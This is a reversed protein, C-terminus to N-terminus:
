FTRMIVHGVNETENDGVLSSSKLQEGWCWFWWSWQLKPFVFQANQETSFAASRNQHKWIFITLEFHDLTFSLHSSTEQAISAWNQIFVQFTQLCEAQTLFCMGLDASMRWHRFIDQTKRLTWIFTACWICIATHQIWICSFQSFSEFVFKTTVDLVPVPMKIDTQALFHRWMAEFTQMLRSVDTNTCRHKDSCKESHQNFDWIDFVSTAATMWNVFDSKNPFSWSTSQAKCKIPCLIGGQGPCGAGTCSPCCACHGRHLQLDADLQSKGCGSVSQLCIHVFALLCMAEAHLATTQEMHATTKQFPVNRRITSSLKPRLSVSRLCVKCIVFAKFVKDLLCKNMNKGHEQWFTVHKFTFHSFHNWM